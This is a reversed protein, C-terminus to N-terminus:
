HRRRRWLVLLGTGVLLAPLVFPFGWALLALQWARLNLQLDLAKGTTVAALADQHDLWHILAVGLDLNAGNALYANSLFDGDGIVAVRQEKPGRVRTLSLALNLPGRQEGLQADFRLPQRDLPGTENWSQPDSRLLPRVNWGDGPAAVLATAVPLLVTNIGRAPLHSGPALGTILFAPNGVGLQASHASLVVGPLWQIGLAQALAQLDSPDGPDGLWLVDGGGRVYDLLAERAAASWPSQPASVVVVSTNAPITAGGELDLSQVHAGRERLSAGFRGLDHNAQGQPDREGHGGIFVVWSDRSHLLQMLAGSFHAQDITRLRTQRDRYELLLEGGAAIGAARAQDPHQAPDVFRLRLDPKVAQYRSVLDTVARRVEPKADVFATVAVPGQLQQLVSRSAPALTHRGAATWDWQIKYQVSAWAIGAALALALLSWVARQLSM